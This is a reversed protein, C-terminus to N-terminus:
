AADDAAGAADAMHRQLSEAFQFRHDDDISPIQDWLARAQVTDLKVSGAKELLAAYDTRGICAYVRLGSPSHHPGAASRKFPKM